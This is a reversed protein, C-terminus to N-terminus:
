KKKTDAIQEFYSKIMRAYDDGYRAKMDQVIKTRLEGPLEGWSKGAYAAKDLGFASLDPLGGAQMGMGLALRTQGPQPSPAAMQGAAQALFRAAQRMAAGAKAPQGQELQGQAAAMQRSANALADGAQASGSKQLGAEAAARQSPNSAESADHAARDLAQAAREQSQKEAPFEGRQGQQRAEDMAQDAQRSNEAARQLAGQMRGSIRPQQALGQFQGSLEGAARQLDRQQAQQQAIQARTDLALPRLRRNIDEQMQELHRARRLADPSQSDSPPSIQKLQSALQRLQEASRQGAQHALRLAGAQIKSAAQQAAQQAQRAQHSITAEEGQEQGINRALEGAQKAVHKQQRVLEEILPDSVVPREVPVAQAERQVAERLERQQRALQRAQDVQEQTPLSVSARAAESPRRDQQQKRAQELQRTAEKPDVLDRLSREFAQALREVDNAAQEQRRVAEDTKGQKLADAARQSEEQKLPETRALPLAPRTQRALKASNKALEQQKRALEALREKQLQRQTQEEARALERQSQALERAREALKRSEEERAQELAQKVPKSQESLRELDAAAEEQERTIKESLERAKPDFVPHKTALEEAQEALRKERAALKGLKARDLREQARQDNTKILKELRKIASGLQKDANDLQRARKPPSAEKPVQELTQQSKQMEQDAVDRALEAIPQLASAADAARAAERLAKQNTRNEDQLERLNDFPDPPLNARDLLEQREKDVDRKEQLLAERIAHLRRHVEDHQTHIEQQELADGGQAIQLTLWRDAPYVIVHPGKYEKPLNDSVRFRYSVRDGENVKGAMELVHRALASPTDRGQLELPQRVSEDENVRYELEIGAVGIDDAAEIELPIREYPLIARRPEKGVFRRVSPPQDPQVHIAGGELATRIGHEAEMILRYKCDTLDSITLSATQRDSSLTLPSRPTDVGRDSNEGPRQCAGSAPIWELYAAAAPRTFCFDFRVGSHELLSLDVLGHLTEQVKISRAYDPPTITIAPSDAALEVPPIATIRFTESVIEGAGIRYCVDGAAKYALTFDGNAERQMAQRTQKGEADIVLLAAADPLIIKGDRPTLHASLTVTHGRAAIADGPSVAIDYPPATPAVTWPQFFRQMLQGYQGPWFLAPASLLLVIAGALVSLLGTRRAPVAPRVDLGGSRIATEELLMAVLVPSGHGESAGKSLAVASTLREDLDPYKEEIVAALAAADLRRFLPAAVWRVLFGIGLAAGVSFLIQRALPPLDLWYDVMVATAIFIGLVVAVLAFGRVARLLRIRWRVAGLRARLPSPLILTASM